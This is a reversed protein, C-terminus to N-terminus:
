TELTLDMGSEMYSTYFIPARYEARKDTTRKAWIGLHLHPPNWYGIEGIKTGANIIDGVQVRVSSRLLHGYLAVYSTGSGTSFSIFCVQELKVV